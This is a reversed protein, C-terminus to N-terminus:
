SNKKNYRRIVMYVIAIMAPAITLTFVAGNGMVTNAGTDPASTNPVPIESEDDSDDDKAEGWVAYITKDASITISNGSKYIAETATAEDAWGLLKYGEKTLTDSTIAVNCGGTTSNGHCTQSAPTSSGGNSDYSLTYVPAWIAYLTQNASLTITGGPQYSASTASASTAWGLFYYNDKTLTTSSITVSCGGTTSNGHCTQSAPATSGGNSGYNLTYIPAWIAYVTKNASLSITNGNQYVATTATASNSWGLFHYGSKTPTTNPITVSCTPQEVSIVCSQAAVSGQGGNVDFSLSVNTTVLEWVAYITRNASLNISNGASYAASTATTSDAWGLFNYGNRTPTTSPITVSCTPQEVSIVCNQTAVSGQGGNVNFSLSVNTTILEWVAYITRDGNLNITTGASYTASTATASNAWGLFNYGNRTPTTNPITVGCTPQISSITCTQAAVSGQGGNVDFSLSVDTTLLGWVAYITKNGNLTINGGASYAASTATASDAWGLFDYGEQTLEASSINISCGGNTSNGYCTQSAPATSGGNSDYSLTYIPAWIAYLTQSVSLNIDSGPQYAATTASASTAWGLFHYNDRTPATSPITVTCYDDGFDLYCIQVEFTETGGNTDYDLITALLFKYSFNEVDGNIQVYQGAGVPDNVTLIMNGEDYSYYSTDDISFDVTEPGHGGDIIYKMGSLDYVYDDGIKTPTIETYILINDIMLDRLAVNSSLDVAELPNSYLDLRTLATNYSVDIETLQNSYLYLSTLITNNSLDISEIQNRSLELYDLATNHSIDIEAIQNRNLDLYYLATMKELGTTDSIGQNSCTLREIKALQAETLGDSSIEEAPFDIKLWTAACDYFNPDVIYAYGEPMEYAFTNESAVIRNAAFTVAPLVFVAAVLASLIIRKKKHIKFM